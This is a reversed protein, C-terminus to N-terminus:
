IKALLQMCELYLENGFDMHETCNSALINTSNQIEKLSRAPEVNNKRYALLQGLLYSEETDKRPKSSELKAILADLKRKFEEM